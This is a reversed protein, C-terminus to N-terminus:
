KALQTSYNAPVWRYGNGQRQVHGLGPFSIHAAAVWFGEKAAQALIRERTAIAQRRDVDFHIAVQPEPMQVAKAHIIDGWLVLTQGESEIRYTVSGPTHGYAAQAQIGLPLRAPASFTKLKGAAILPNLADASEKFTHRQGEEVKSQNADNLWFDPDRKDVYVDANPFTPKGQQSVGGSHDGHVHTLLVANISDAPYGAARLNELLHGGNNGFLQGAGTDVLVRQKGDDIVFTNLSTEAQPTMADEAMRRQLTEKDIPVLLQDLPITVTGDSVATVTLKGLTMRYYGPAQRQTDAAQVAATTMLLGAALVLHRKM